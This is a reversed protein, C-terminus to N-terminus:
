VLPALMSIFLINCRAWQLNCLGLWVIDVFVFALFMALINLSYFRRWFKVKDTPFLEEISFFVCFFLESTNKAIM